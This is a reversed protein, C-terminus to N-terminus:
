LLPLISTVEPLSSSTVSLIGDTGVTGVVYTNDSLRLASVTVQDAATVSYAFIEFDANSFFTKEEGTDPNVTEIVSNGLSDQGLVYLTNGSAQVQSFKTIKELTIRNCQMGKFLYLNADFGSAFVNRDSLDARLWMSGNLFESGPVITRSVSGDPNLVIQFAGADGQTTVFSYFHGDKGVWNNIALNWDGLGVNVAGGDAKYLRNVWKGNNSGAKAVAVLADGNQNVAVDEATRELSSNTLVTKTIADSDGQVRFGLLSTTSFTPATIRVLAGNFSYFYTGKGSAQIPNQAPAPQNSSFSNYFPGDFRVVKGDSKRVFYSGSKLSAYIFDGVAGIYNATPSSALQSGSADTAQVPLVKGDEDQRYLNGQVNSLVQYKGASTSGAIFLSKAGVIGLAYLDATSGTTSTSDPEGSKISNTGNPVLATCGGLLLALALLSSTRNM